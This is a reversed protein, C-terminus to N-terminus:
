EPGHLDLKIHFRDSRYHAFTLLFPQDNENYITRSIRLIASLPAVGLLEVLNTDAQMADITQDARVAEHGADALLQVISWKALNALTIISEFKVPLFSSVYGIPSGDLHRVRGAKIVDQGEELQLASAVTPIPKKRVVEIVNVTTGSGLTMLSDMAQHINAEIPAAPSKFIVKTGVRRKRMVYKESALENLVRSATIRSVKFQDSLELETPMFSGFPRQGSLIEDRMQLYIQYYLPVAAEHDAM